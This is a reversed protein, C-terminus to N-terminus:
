RVKVLKITKNYDGAQMRLFYVGYPLDSVELPVSYYGANQTQNVLTGTRRGIIDFMM